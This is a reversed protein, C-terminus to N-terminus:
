VTDLNAIVLLPQKVVTLKKDPTFINIICVFPIYPLWYPLRTAARLKYFATNKVVVWTLIWILVVFCKYQTQDRLSILPEYSLIMIIYNDGCYSAIGSFIVLKNGNVNNYQVSTVICIAVFKHYNKTYSHVITISTYYQGNHATKSLFKLCAIWLCQSSEFICTNREAIGSLNQQRRDQYSSNCCLYFHWLCYFFSHYKPLLSKIIQVM